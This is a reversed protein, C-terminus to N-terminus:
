SETTGHELYKLPKPCGGRLFQIFNFQSPAELAGEPPPMTLSLPPDKKPAKVRNKSTEFEKM